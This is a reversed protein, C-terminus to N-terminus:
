LFCYLSLSKSHPKQQPLSSSPSGLHWSNSRGEKKKEREWPSSWIIANKHITSQNITPLRSLPYHLAPPHFFTFDISSHININRPHGKMMPFSIPPQVLQSSLEYQGTYYLSFPNSFFSPFSHFTPQVPSNSQCCLRNIKNIFRSNSKLLNKTFSPKLFPALSSIPVQKVQLHPRWIMSGAHQFRRLRSSVSLLPHTLILWPM